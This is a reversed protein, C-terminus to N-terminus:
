SICPNWPLSFTGTGAFGTVLIMNGSTGPQRKATEFNGNADKWLGSIQLFVKIVDYQQKSGPDTLDFESLRISQRIQSSEATKIDEWVQEIREVNLEDADFQNTTTSFDYIRDWVLASDNEYLLQDQTSMGNNVITDFPEVTSALSYQSNIDADELAGNAMIDDVGRQIINDVNYQSLLPDRFYENFKTIIVEKLEVTVTELKSLTGAPADILTDPFDAWPKYKMLTYYAYKYFGPKETNSSYEPSFVVVLPKLNTKRAVIKGVYSRYGKIFSKLSLTPLQLALEDFEQAHKWKELLNRQAYLDVLNSVTAPETSQADANVKRLNSALNISEFASSCYVYPSSLLLHLCEVESKDRRGCLRNFTRRLLNKPNLDGGTDTQAQLATTIVNKLASTPNEVKNCYKAVYNIMTGNDILISADMNGSNLQLGVISHANTWGDNTKFQMIVKTVRVKGKNAGRYYIIIYYLIDIFNYKYIVNTLSNYTHTHFQIHTM